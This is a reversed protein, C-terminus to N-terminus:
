RLATALATSSVFRPCMRNFHCLFGERWTSLEHQFSSEQCVSLPQNSIVHNHAVLGSCGSPLTGTQIKTRSNGLVSDLQGHLKALRVNVSFFPPEMFRRRNPM